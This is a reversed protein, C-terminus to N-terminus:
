RVAVNGVFVGLTWSFVQSGLRGSAFGVLVPTDKYNSKSIPHLLSLDRLSQLLAPDPEVGNVSLFIPATIGHRKFYHRVMAERVANETVGDRAVERLCCVRAVISILIISTLLWGFRKLERFM